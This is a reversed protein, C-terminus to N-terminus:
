DRRLMAVIHGVIGRAVTMKTAPTLRHQGSADFLIVSNTDSGLGDQM